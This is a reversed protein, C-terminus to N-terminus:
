MLLGKRVFVQRCIEAARALTRSRCIRSRLKELRERMAIARADDSLLNLAEKALSEGNCEGRVLEPVVQGGAIINPFAYFPLRFKTFTSYMFDQWPPLRYTMIHPTAAVACEHTATGSAVLMLDAHSILDYRLEPELLAVELNRRRLESLICNRLHSHAVPLAFVIEPLSQQILGAADLLPGGILKVEQRRSGPMLGVLKNDGAGCMERFRTRELNPKVMECLPHGIFEFPVEFFEFLEFGLPYIVLAFDCYERMANFRKGIRRQFALPQEEIRQLRRDFAAQWLTPALYYIIPGSFGRRRITEALRLNFYRNDVLIVADVGGELIFKVARNFLSLHFPLQGLNSFVGVASHAVPDAVLHAGEAELNVSGLASLTLKPMHSQERLARVLYSAHLDGSLEGTALFLHLRDSSAPFACM